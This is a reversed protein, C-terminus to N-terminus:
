VSAHSFARADALGGTGLCEATASVVAAPGRLTRGRPSSDGDERGVSIADTRAGTTANLHSTTPRATRMQSRKAGSMSRRASGMLRM